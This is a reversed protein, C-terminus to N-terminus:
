PQVITTSVANNRRINQGNVFRTPGYPLFHDSFTSTELANTIAARDSSKAREIAWLMM